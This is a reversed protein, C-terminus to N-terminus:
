EVIEVSFGDYALRIGAPLRASIEDYDVTHSLHTLIAQKPRLERILELATVIDMSSRKWRETSEYYHSAGLVLLDLEALAQRMDNTARLIDPIYALRRVGTHILYGFAAGGTGHDVRLPRVRLGWLDVVEEIPEPHVVRRYAKDKWWHGFRERADDLVESPAYVPLAHGAEFRSSLLPGLGLIHADHAHTLLLADVYRLGLKTAQLRFEPAADILVTRGAYSPGYYLAVSPGTRYNRSGSSLVSRCVDCGCGIRPVGEEDSSGLFILQLEDRNM